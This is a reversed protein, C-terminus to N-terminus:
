YGNLSIGAGEGFSVVSQIDLTRKIHRHLAAARRLAKFAKEQNEIEKGTLVAPINHQQLYEWACQLNTHSSAETRQLGSAYSLIKFHRQVFTIAQDRAPNGDIPFQKLSYVLLAASELPALILAPLFLEHDRNCQYSKGDAELLFGMKELPELSARVKQELSPYHCPPFLSRYHDLVELMSDASVRNGESFALSALLPVLFAQMCTNKYFDATIRKTGQIFYVPTNQLTAASIIPGKLGIEVPSDSGDLFSSLTPTFPPAGTTGAHLGSLAKGIDFIRKHVDDAFRGCHASHLIVTCALSFLSIATNHGIADVLRIAMEDVAERTGASDNEVGIHECLSAISLPEGFHIVVDGYKQLFLGRARILNWLSERTKPQGTNERALTLDEIIREYTISVPVFLIDKRLGERYADVYMKLLGKKPPRMKGSRSRGGEIFFEQLHGRKVLYHVYHRVVLAHIRDNRSNRKLFFAGLTRLIPGIPWFSLNIGAAIIPPNLGSDYLVKSLLIYDLHSRHMPVLVYPRLSSAAIIKDLGNVSVSRFLRKILFQVVVSACSFAIRLPMAAISYFERQAMTQLKEPSEETRRGLEALDQKWAPSHLIIREQLGLHQFPPGHVFRAIRYIQLRAQRTLRTRVNVGEGQFTFPEGLRVVISRPSIILRTVIAFRSWFNMSYYSTTRVPGCGPYVTLAIARAESTNRYWTALSEPDHIPLWYTEKSSFETTSRYRVPTVTSDNHELIKKLLASVIPSDGQTLILPNSSSDFLEKDPVPLQVRRCLSMAIRELLSQRM